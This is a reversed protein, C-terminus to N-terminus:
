NTSGITQNLLASILPHPILSSFDRDFHSHLFSSLHFSFSYIMKGEGGRKKGGWGEKESRTRLIRKFPFLFWAYVYSRKQLSHVNREKKQKELFFMMRVRLLSGYMYIVNKICYDIRVFIFNICLTASKYRYNFHKNWSNVEIDERHVTM